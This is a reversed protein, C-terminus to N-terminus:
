IIINFKVGNENNSDLSVNGKLREVLSKVTFLGIGSGDTTTFGLDFIHAVDEQPIPKGDNFIQLQLKDEIKGIEFVIRKAGAKEANQVFNDILTTMELPRFRMTYEHVSCQIEIQSTTKLIPIDPLYIEEIYEKIFQVINQTIESAKLDFNANTIFTSLSEIKASELSIISIYKQIKPDINIHNQKIYSIL